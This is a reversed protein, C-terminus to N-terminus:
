GRGSVRRRTQPLRRPCRPPGRPHELPRHHAPPPSPPTQSAPVTATQRMSSCAPACFLWIVHIFSVVHHRATLLARAICLEKRSSYSRVTNHGYYSSHTGPIEQRNQLYNPQSSFFFFFFWWRLLMLPRPFLVTRRAVHVSQLTHTTNQLVHTGPTMEHLTRYTIPTTSWRQESVSCGSLRHLPLSKFLVNNSKGSVLIWYDEPRTVTRDVGNTVM